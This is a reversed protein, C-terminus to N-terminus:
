DITEVKVNMENDELDICLDLFHEPVLAMPQISECKSRTLLVEDFYRRVCEM